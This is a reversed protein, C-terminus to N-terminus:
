GSPSHARGRSRPATLVEEIGLSRARKVHYYVLYERLLRRLHRNDFVIVYDFLDRRVSGVSRETAAGIM